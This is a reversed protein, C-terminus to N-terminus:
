HFVYVLNLILYVFQSRKRVLFEPLRGRVLMLRLPFTISPTKCKTTPMLM